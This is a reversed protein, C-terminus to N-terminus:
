GVQHFITQKNSAVDRQSSFVKNCTIRLRGNRVESLLVLVRQNAYLIIYDEEEFSFNPLGPPNSFADGGSIM